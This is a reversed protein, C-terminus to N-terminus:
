EEDQSNRYDCADQAIRKSPFLKEQDYVSGSGIGTEHAMYSEEHLDGAVQVRIYGITLERDLEWKMVTYITKGGDGRCAPCVREAGDAGTIKTRKSFSAVPTDHGKCFTCKEWAKQKRQIIKWVKAGLNYQSEFLM